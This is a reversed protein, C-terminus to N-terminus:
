KQINEDNKYNKRELYTQLILYAEIINKFKKERKKSSQFQEILSKGLRSTFKEDEFEVPIKLEQFCKRGFNLVKQAQLGFENRLTKPLGIIIKEVNERQCIEKLNDFFKENNELVTLPFSIIKLEDSIALGINKEGWDIGLIKGM